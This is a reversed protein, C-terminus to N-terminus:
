NQAQPAAPRSRKAILYVIGGFIAGVMAEPVAVILHSIAHQLPPMALHKGMMEDYYTAAGTKATIMIGVFIIAQAWVSLIAFCGVGRWYSGVPSLGERIFFVFLGILTAITISMLFSGVKDSIGLPEMWGKMFFRIIAVVLVIGLFLLLTRGNVKM